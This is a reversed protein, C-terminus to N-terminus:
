GQVFKENSQVVYRQLFRCSPRLLKGAAAYINYSYFKATYTVNCHQKRIARFVIIITGPNDMARHSEPSLQRCQHLCGTRHLDLFHFFTAYSVLKVMCLAPLLLQPFPKCIKSFEHRINRSRFNGFSQVCKRYAIMISIGPRFLAPSNSWFGPQFFYQEIIHPHPIRVPSLASPSNKRVKESFRNM